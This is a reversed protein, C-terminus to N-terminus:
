STRKVQVWAFSLELFPLLLARHSGLLAVIERRAEDGILAVSLL